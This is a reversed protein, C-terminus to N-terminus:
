RMLLHGGGTRLTFWIGYWMRFIRRFIIKEDVDADEHPRNGELKGVFIRYVGRREEMRAVNGSITERFKRFIIM